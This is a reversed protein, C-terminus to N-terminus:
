YKKKHSNGRDMHPRLFSYLYQFCDLELPRSARVFIDHIDVVTLNKQGNSFPYNDLFHAIKAFNVFFFGFLWKFPCLEAVM